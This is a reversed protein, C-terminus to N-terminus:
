PIKKGWPNFGHSRSQCISEKIGSSGPFGKCLYIYVIICVCVYM